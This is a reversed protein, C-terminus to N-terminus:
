GPSLASREMAQRAQLIAREHRRRYRRWVLHISIDVPPPLLPLMETLLGVPRSLAAAPTDARTAVALDRAANSSSRYVMTTM